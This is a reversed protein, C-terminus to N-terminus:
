ILKSKIKKYIYTYNFVAKKEGAATKYTVCWEIYLGSEDADLEPSVGDTVTFLYYEGKDEAVFSVTGYDEAALYNGNADLFKVSLAADSMGEKSAFYIKGESDLNADAAPTNYINDTDVTNGVYYQFPTKVASKWSTVDPYLYIIEPVYLVTENDTNVVQASAEPMVAAPAFFCLTTFVLVASLFVSLTKKLNLM